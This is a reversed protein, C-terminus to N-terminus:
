STVPVMFDHVPVLPAIVFEHIYPSPHTGDATPVQGPPVYWRDAGAILASSSPAVNEENTEVARAVDIVGGFRTGQHALDAALSAGLGASAPARYYANVALRVTNYGSPNTTIPTQGSATHWEDISTTRPTITTVWVAAGHSGCSALGTLLSERYKAFTMPGSLDNTGYEYVVHEAYAVLQERMYRGTPSAYVYGQEGNHGLLFYPLGGASISSRRFYGLGTLDGVGACISDGVYAAIPVNRKTPTGLVAAPGFSMVLKTGLWADVPGTTTVDDAGLHAKSLGDYQGRFNDGCDYASGLDVRLPDDICWLGIPIGPSKGAPAAVNVNIRLYFYTDAPIAIPLVDNVIFASPELVWHTAGKYHLPTFTGAPYEVDASITLQAPAATDGDKVYYGAWVATLDSCGFSSPTRNRQRVTGGDTRATGLQAPTSAYLGSHNESALVSIPVRGGFGLPDSSSTARAVDRVEDRLPLLSSSATRSCATLAAVGLGSVFFRRSQL